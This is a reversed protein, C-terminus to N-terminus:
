RRRSQIWPVLRMLFRAIADILSFRRRMHAQISLGWQYARHSARYVASLNKLEIRTFKDAIRDYQSRDPIVPGVAGTNRFLAVIREDGYVLEFAAAGLVMALTGLTYNYPHAIQPFKMIDQWMPRLLGIHQIYLLGGPKLFTQISALAKAPLDMHEFCEVMIVLDFDGNGQLDEIIGQQINLQFANGISCALADPEIGAM